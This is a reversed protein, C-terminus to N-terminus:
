MNYVIHVKQSSVVYTECSSNCMGGESNAPYFILDFRRNEQFIMLSKMVIVLEKVM